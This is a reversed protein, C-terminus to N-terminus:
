FAAQDELPTEANSAIRERIDLGTQCQRAESGVDHSDVPLQVHGIRCTESQEPRAPYQEAVWSSEPRSGVLSKLHKGRGAIQRSVIKLKGVLEAHRNCVGPDLQGVQRFSLQLLTRSREGVPGRIGDNRWPGATGEPISRELEETLADLDDYLLAAKRYSNGTKRLVPRRHRVKQFAEWFL